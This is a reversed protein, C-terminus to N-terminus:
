WRFLHRVAWIRRTQHEGLRLPTGAQAVTLTAFTATRPVGSSSNGGSGSGCGGVACLILVVTLPSRMDEGRTAHRPGYEFSRPIEVTTRIAAPIAVPRDHRSAFTALRDGNRPQGAANPGYAWEDFLKSLDQNTEAPRIAASGGANGERRTGHYIGPTRILM